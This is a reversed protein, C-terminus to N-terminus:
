NIMSSGSVAGIQLRLHMDEDYENETKMTYKQWRRTYILNLECEMKSPLFEYKWTPFSPQSGQTHKDFWKNVWCEFRIWTEVGNFALLLTKEKESWKNM